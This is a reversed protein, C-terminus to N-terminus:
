ARKKGFYSQMLKVAKACYGPWDAHATNIEYGWCGDPDVLLMRDGCKAIIRMRNGMCTMWCHDDRQVDVYAAASKPPREWDLITINGM